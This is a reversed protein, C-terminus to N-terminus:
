TGRGNFNFSQLGVRCDFHSHPLGCLGDYIVDVRGTRPDSLLAFFGSILTSLRGMCLMLEVLDIEGGSSWSAVDRPTLWVPSWLGSVLATDWTTGNSKKCANKIVPM